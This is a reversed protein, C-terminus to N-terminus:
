GPTTAAGPGASDAALSDLSQGAALAAKLWKPKPGRGGWANGAGDRYKITAPSEAAAKQKAPAKPAAKTKTVKAVKTVEVGNAGKGTLGLDEATLDYAAIATKIRAVVGALEKKRVTEAKAKLTEIDQTLQAFTKAM